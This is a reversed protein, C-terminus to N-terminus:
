AIKFPVDAYGWLITGLIILFISVKQIKRRVSPIVTGTIVPKGNVRVSQNEQSKSFTYQRFDLLVSFLVMISGSRQLWYYENQCNIDIILSILCPFVAAVFLLIDIIYDKM